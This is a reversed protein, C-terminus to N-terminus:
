IQSERGWERWIWEEQHDSNDIFLEWSPDDWTLKERWFKKLWRRKGKVFGMAENFEVEVEEEEEEGGRFVELSSSM